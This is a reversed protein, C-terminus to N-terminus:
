KKKFSQIWVLLMYDAAAVGMGLALAAPLSGTKRLMLYGVGGGIILAGFLPGEQLKM